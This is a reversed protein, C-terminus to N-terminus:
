LFCGQLLIDTISHPEPSLEMGLLFTLVPLGAKPLPADCRRCASSDSQLLDSFVTIAAPALSNDVLRERVRLAAPLLRERARESINFM